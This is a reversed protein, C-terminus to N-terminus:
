LFKREPHLGLLVNKVVAPCFTTGASEKVTAVVSPDGFFSHALYLVSHKLRNIGKKPM